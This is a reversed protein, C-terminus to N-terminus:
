VHMNFVIHASHEFPETLVTCPRHTNTESFDYSPTLLTYATLNQKAFMLWSLMHFERSAHCLNGAAIGVPMCVRYNRCFGVEINCISMWRILYIYLLRMSLSRTYYWSLNFITSMFRAIQNACKAWTGNLILPNERIIGACRQAHWHVLIDATQQTANCQM